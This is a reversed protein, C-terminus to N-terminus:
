MFLLYGLIALLAIPAGQQAPRNVPETQVPQEIADIPEILDVRTNKTRYEYDSFQKPFYAKLYRTAHDGKFWADPLTSLSILETKSANMLAWSDDSFQLLLDGLDGLTETPTSIRGLM